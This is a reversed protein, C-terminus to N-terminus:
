RQYAKRAHKPCYPRRERFDATPDGCFFAAPETPGGLPWRCTENTLDMIRIPAPAPQLPQPDSQPRKRPGQLKKPPSPVKRRALGLRRVKGMVASRSVPFDCTFTIAAAIERSTQGKDWLDRCLSIVEDPWSHTTGNATM